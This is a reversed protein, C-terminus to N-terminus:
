NNKLTCFFVFFREAWKKQEYVQDMTFENEQAIARISELDCNESLIM